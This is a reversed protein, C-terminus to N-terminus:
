ASKTNSASNGGGVLSKTKFKFSVGNLSLAVAVIVATVLKLDSQPMGLRMALAIAGQYLMAGFVVATTAKIFSLKGWIMTLIKLITEGIIVAALGTVAMGTGMGADSYSQSQAFISGALAVLGNAIILGMIKTRNKNVKSVSCFLSCNINKDM